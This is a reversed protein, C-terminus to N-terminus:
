KKDPTYTLIECPGVGFYNCLRNLVDIKISEIEDHVLHHATKYTVGIAQQMQSVNGGNKLDLLKSINNTIVPKTIEPDLPKLKKERRTYIGTLGDM